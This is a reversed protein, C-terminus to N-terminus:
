QVAQQLLYVHTEHKDALGQLFNELGDTMEASCVELCSCVLEILAKELKLAEAAFKKPDDSLNFSQMLEATKAAQLAPAVADNNGTLGILKEAMTDLDAYTGEYIRAFLLHDGYFQSGRTRWHFSHEAEYVARVFALMDSLVATLTPMGTMPHM